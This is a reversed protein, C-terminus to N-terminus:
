HHSLFRQIFEWNKIRVMISHSTKKPLEELLSDLEQYDVKYKEMKSKQDELSNLSALYAEKSRSFNILEDAKNKQMKEKSITRIIVDRNM